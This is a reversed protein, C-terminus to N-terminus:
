IKIRDLREYIREIWDCFDNLSMTLKATNCHYCCAVCNNLTYGLENDLRDIGNCIYSAWEVGQINTRKIGSRKKNPMEDCYYCNNSTLIKFEEKSLDFNLNRKKANYKYKGYFYNLGSESKKTRKPRIFRKSRLCGCSKTENNILDYETVLKENNCECKCLWTRRTRIKINSFKVVTLLNFTQGTLDLKM